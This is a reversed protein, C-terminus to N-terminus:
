QFLQRYHHLFIGEEVLFVCNLIEERFQENANEFWYM